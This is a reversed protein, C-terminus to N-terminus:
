NIPPIIMKFAVRIHILGLKLNINKKVSNVTINTRRTHVFCMAVMTTTADPSLIKTWVFKECGKGAVM